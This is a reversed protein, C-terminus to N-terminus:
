GAAAFHGSLPLLVSISSDEAQIYCNLMSSKNLDTQDQGKGGHHSHNGRQHRVLVMGSLTPMTSM